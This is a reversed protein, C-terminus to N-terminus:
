MYIFRPLGEKVKTGSTVVEDQAVRWTEKLEGAIIIGSVSWNKLCVLYGTASM